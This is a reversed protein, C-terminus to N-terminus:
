MRTGLIYWYYPFAPFGIPNVLFYLFRVALESEAESALESGARERAPREVDPPPAAPQLGEPRAELSELAELEGRGDVGAEPFDAKDAGRPAQLRRGHRRPAGRM